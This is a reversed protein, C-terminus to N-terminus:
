IVMLVIITLLVMIQLVLFRVPIDITKFNLFRYDHLKKM